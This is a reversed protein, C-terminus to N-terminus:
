NAKKKEKEFLLRPLNILIPPDYPMPKRLKIYVEEDAQLNVIVPKKAIGRLNKNLLFYDAPNMSRPIAAALVFYSGPPVETFECGRHSHSFATGVIPKQDPIPRPFLGVFVWGIFDAPIDIYCKISPLKGSQSAELKPVNEYKNMFDHLAAATAQFQKPSLGVFQKFKSSFTGLSQFGIELMTGLISKSSSHILLNKGAEIRLASLYHRPSVGTVEKFIRTFHYPSYGAESALEETTVEENLKRKMYDISRLVAQTQEESKDM